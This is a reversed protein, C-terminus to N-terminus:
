RETRERGMGPVLKSAKMDREQYCWLIHCYCVGHAGVRMYLLKKSYECEM